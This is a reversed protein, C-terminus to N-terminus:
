KDNHVSRSVRSQSGSDRINVQVRMALMLCETQALKEPNLELTAILVRHSLSKIIRM